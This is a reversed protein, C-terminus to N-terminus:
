LYPCGVKTVHTQLKLLPLARAVIKDKHIATLGARQRGGPGWVLNLTEAVTAKADAGVTHNLDRREALPMQDDQRRRLRELLHEGTRRAEVRSEPRHAMLMEVAKRPTNTATGM